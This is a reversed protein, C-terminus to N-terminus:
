IGEEKKCLGCQFPHGSVALGRGGRGVKKWMTASGRGGGLRSYGNHISGLPVNTPFRLKSPFKLIIAFCNLAMEVM